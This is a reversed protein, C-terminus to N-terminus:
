LDNKIIDDLTEGKVAVYDEDGNVMVVPLRPIRNYNSAMSYNYAGTTLVAVIDGRECKPLSVDMQIIDGSECCRGVVDAVLSNEENMKLANYITYSSGYLAFRPNDTM